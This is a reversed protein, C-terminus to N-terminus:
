AKPRTLEKLTFAFSEFPKGTAQRMVVECTRNASINDNRRCELSSIGMPFMSTSLARGGPKPDHRSLRMANSAPLSTPRKKGTTHM